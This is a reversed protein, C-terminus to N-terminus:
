RSRQQTKAIGDTKSFGLCLDSITSVHSKQLFFVCCIRYPKILHSLTHTYTHAHVCQLTFLRTNTTFKNISLPTIGHQGIVDLGRIKMTQHGSVTVKRPNTSRRKKQFNSQKKFTDSATRGETHLFVCPM